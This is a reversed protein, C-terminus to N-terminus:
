ATGLMKSWPFLLYCGLAAVVVGGSTAARVIPPMTARMVREKLGVKDAGVLQDVQKGNRYFQMTPMSKVNHVSAMERSKDVDVKVFVVKNRVKPLAALSDIFPALKKCPGCWEAFYDVVVLKSGAEQLVERLEEEDEVLLVEGGRLRMLHSTPGLPALFRNALASGDLQTVTGATASLGTAVVAGLVPLTALVITQLGAM